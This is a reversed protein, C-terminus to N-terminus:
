DNYYFCILKNSYKVVSLSCYFFFLPYFKPRLPHRLKKRREVLAVYFFTYQEKLDCLGTGTRLNNEEYKKSFIAQSIKM